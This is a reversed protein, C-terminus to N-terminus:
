EIRVQKNKYVRFVRNHQHGYNWTKFIVEDTEIVWPKALSVDVMKGCRKCRFDKEEKVIVVIKKKM